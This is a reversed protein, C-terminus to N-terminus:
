SKSSTLVWCLLLSWCLYDLPQVIKLGSACQCPITPFQLSAPACWLSRFRITGNLRKFGGIGLFPKHFCIINYNVFVQTWVATLKWGNPLSANLMYIKQSLSGMWLCSTFNIRILIYTTLLLTLWEVSTNM